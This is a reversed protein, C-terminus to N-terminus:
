QIAIKLQTKEMLFSFKATLFALKDSYNSYGIHGGSKAEKLLVSFGKGKMLKELRRSHDPNVRTDDSSTLLMTPPYESLQSIMSLPSYQTIQLRANEDEPSGFEDIFKGQDLELINALDTLPAHAVVGAYRDPHLAAAALVLYGGHSSGFLALKEQTTIGTDVLHASVASFDLLSVKKNFGKAAYEWFVGYEGGGRVFAMVYVGGNEIWLPGAAALYQKPFVIGHGGYATMLTPRPSSLEGKYMILYPIAQGDDSTAYQYKVTVDNANFTQSQSYLPVVRPNNNEPNDFNLYYQVRPSVFFQSSVLAESGRPDIYNIEVSGSSIESIQSLKNDDLQALSVLQDIGNVVNTALTINSSGMLRKYDVFNFANDNQSVVEPAFLGAIADILNLKVLSSPLLTQEEGSKLQVTTQTTSIAWIAGTSIDVIQYFNPLSILSSKEDADYLKYQLGGSDLEAVLIGLGGTVQSEYFETAPIKRVSDVDRKWVLVADQGADADGLSLSKYFITNENLWATKWDGLPLQFGNEILHQSLLDIEHVIKEDQGFKSFSVLCRSLGIHCNLDSLFLQQESFPLMDDFNIFSSWKINDTQGVPAIEISNTREFNSGTKLRFMHGDNVMFIQSPVIAGGLSRLRKDVYRIYAGDNGAAQKEAEHLADAAGQADTSQQAQAWQGVFLTIALYLTLKRTILYLTRSLSKFKPM